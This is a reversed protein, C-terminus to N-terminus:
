TCQEWSTDTYFEISYWNHELRRVRPVRCPIGNFKGASHSGAAGALSDTPDFVLYVNTDMGAWGWGDWELHRLQGDGPEPRALLRAKYPGSELFWRAYTRVTIMNAFLIWSVVWYAPCSLLISLNPTCKRRIALILVIVALLLTLVPVGIWFYVIEGLDFAGSILILFNLFAAGSAVYLILWWGFRNIQHSNEAM